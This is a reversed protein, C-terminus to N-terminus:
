FSARLHLQISRAPLQNTAHGFLPSSLDSTVATLNARNFLNYFEGQFQLHLDEGFFWKTTFARTVTFDFNNFGPQDFTNRGLSGEQGLPPAAFASALFLGNLFDSRSQGSLHNGFSPTGPVDYNYGDANYDGGQNGVVQGAANFVPKFPASNYVTFPLGTQLIWVGGLQWGGLIHREFGSHYHSPVTWVGNATFQQRIDFDARGRQAGLDGNRIVPTTTTISGADLSDATSITDLTKGYTYIGSLTLGHWSNMRLSASGYNGISNGDATAYIITGFNPNLRTLTGDNVILDGAFRNIDDNYVPLHHAATGSYNLAVVLNNKLQHEVSFTWAEVQTFAYDPSYGGLNARQGVIGGSSNLAVNSTDVVPCSENTGSPPSCLQFVPTTGQFVNFSPTYFNPLNGATVDTIHLYPPESSFMGAGGRLATKGNSFVDWAFGLRPYISWLNHDLVHNGSTLGTAGNAIQEQYSSGAGFNFNTLKPSLISFFNPM